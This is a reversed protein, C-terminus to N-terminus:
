VEYDRTQFTAFTFVGSKQLNIYILFFYVSLNPRTSIWMVLALNVDSATFIVHFVFAQILPTYKITRLVTL